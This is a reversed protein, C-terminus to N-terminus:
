DDFMMAADINEWWRFLHGVVPGAVADEIVVTIRPPSGQLSYATRRLGCAALRLGCYLSVAGGDGAHQKGDWGTGRYVLTRGPPPARSSSDMECERTAPPLGEELGGVRWGM